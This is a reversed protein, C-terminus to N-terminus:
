LILLLLLLIIIIIIINVDKNMQNFYMDFTVITSDLNNKFISVLM